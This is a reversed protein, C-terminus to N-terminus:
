LGSGGTERKYSWHAVQILWSLRGTELDKGEDCKCLGIAMYPLMNVSGPLWTTSMTWSVIGRFYIFSFSLKFLCLIGAYSSKRLYYLLFFLSNYKSDWCDGCLGCYSDSIANFFIMCWAQKSYRFTGWVEGVQVWKMKVLFRAPPISVQFVSILFHLNLNTIHSEQPWMATSPAGPRHYSGPLESELAWTDVRGLCVLFLILHVAATSPM